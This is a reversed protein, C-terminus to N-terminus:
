DNGKPLGLKIGSIKKANHVLMIITNIVKTQEQIFAQQQMIGTENRSAHGKSAQEARM